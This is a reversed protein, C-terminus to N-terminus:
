LPLREQCLWNAFQISLIFWPFGAWGQCCVGHPPKLQTQKFVCVMKTLLAKFLSESRSPLPCVTDSATVSWNRLFPVCPGKRPLQEILNALCFRLSPM